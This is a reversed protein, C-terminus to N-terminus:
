GWRSALTELFAVVGAPGDLVLDARDSLATVEASASCILLGPLGGERLDDVADYAPLDGLDDGSFTVVEAGVELVLADLAAGKDMDPPRLEVVMRGPQVALGHSRALTTLPETLLEQAATPSPTNRFHVAVSHGKDEVATGAPAALDALVGPLAQRVAAVGPFPEPSTVEGTAASWRELGYHGAVLLGSLAPEDTFRGLSLVQAVPRGTVIALAGVHPALRALAAIAGPHASANAPDDVIPSLVGDFDFALLARAPNALLAALGAEGAPTRPQPLDRPATM